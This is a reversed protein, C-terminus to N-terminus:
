KCHHPALPQKSWRPRTLPSTTHSNDSQTLMSSWATRHRKGKTLQQRLVAGTPQYARMMKPSASVCKVPRTLNHHIDQPNVAPQRRTTNVPPGWLGHEHRSCQDISLSADHNILCLRVRSPTPRTRAIKNLKQPLQPGLMQSRHTM